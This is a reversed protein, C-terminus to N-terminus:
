RFNFKASGLVCFISANSKNLRMHRKSALYILAYHSFAESVLNEIDTVSFAILRHHEGHVPHGVFHPSKLIYACGITVEVGPKTRVASPTCFYLERYVFFYIFFITMPSQFLFACKNKKIEV